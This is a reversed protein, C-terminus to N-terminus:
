YFATEEAGSELLSRLIELARELRDANGAATVALRVARPPRASGVAFREAAFVRVGAQYARREFQEGTFREPLTLWRFNCEPVGALAHGRLVRDALANCRRIRDRHAKVVSRARGGHIMRAALEALLAPVSVNMNYLATGVRRTWAAPATVFALRLGPSVVKSLSSVYVVRDPAYAAVPLPPDEQLLSNIGDEVVILGQRAAVEAIGRREAASLTRTTPNHLDPILYLGKINENKCAYLVGEATMAGAEQHIPVLQIGLMGAATKVGPYTVPDAGIRDGPRFLGALAAALANQGGGALLVNGPAPRFGTGALWKVAAEKQWPTGGPPGYRFLAGFDPEGAMDRLYEAVADNPAADPFISGLEIIRSGDASWLMTNVATDSAVFTGSGVSSCILGRQGCLRFARSVTSLNLGLRDALVRQPPLRAGPPLLGGRIDRELREALALYLPPAAARLDPTWDPESAHPVTAAM